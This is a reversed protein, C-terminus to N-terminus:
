IHPVMKLDRHVIGRDHMYKVADIIQSIIKISKSESFRGKKAIQEALNGGDVCKLIVVVETETEYYDLLKIIHRHQMSKLLQIEKYIPIWDSKNNSKLVVKAAVKRGTLNEVAEYVLSFNGQGL